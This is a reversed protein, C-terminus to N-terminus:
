GTDVRSPQTMQDGVSWGTDVAMVHFNSLLLPDGTTRDRVPVGLTGAFVFGGIARCPGISIGGKVPNYTGTDAMPQLEAVKAAAPHLTFTRQIVDTKIGGIESPIMQDAPVSKKERVFVQISVAGTRKGGVYKHGVAIGTVGPRKLIDHEVSEKAQISAQLYEM